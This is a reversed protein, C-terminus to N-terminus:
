NAAPPVQTPYLTKAIMKWSAPAQCNTSSPPTSSEWSRSPTARAAFIPFRLPLSKGRSSSPLTLRSPAACVAVGLLVSSVLIIRKMATTSIPAGRRSPKRQLQGPPSSLSRCGHRRSTSSLDLTNNGSSQTCVKANKVSGDRLIDFTIVAMPLHLGALGSTQWKQTVRQVVLDAYAGFQIEM